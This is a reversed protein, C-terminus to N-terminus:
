YVYFTHTHCFRFAKNCHLFNWFIFNKPIKPLQYFMAWMPYIKSNKNEYTFFISIRSAEICIPVFNNWKVHFFFPFFQSLNNSLHFFPSNSHILFSDKINWLPYGLWTQGQQLIHFIVMFQFFNHKKENHM